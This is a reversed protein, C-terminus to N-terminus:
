KAEELVLVFKPATKGADSTAWDAAHSADIELQTSVALRVNNLPPLGPAPPPAADALIRARRNSVFTTLADLEQRATAYEATAPVRGGQGTKFPMRDLFDALMRMRAHQPAVDLTIARETELVSQWTAFAATKKRDVVTAPNQLRYLNLDALQDELYLVHRARWTAADMTLLKELQQSAKSYPSDDVAALAAQYVNIRADALTSNAAREREALSELRTLESKDKDSVAKKLREAFVTDTPHASLLAASASEWQKKYAGNLNIAEETLSAHVVKLCSLEGQTLYHWHALFEKETPYQSIHAAIQAQITRPAEGKVIAQYRITPLDSAATCEDDKANKVQQLIDGAVGNGADLVGRGGIFNAAFSGIATIVPTLTETSTSETSTLLGEDSLQVMFDPDTFPLTDMRLSYTHRPDPEYTASISYEPAGGNAPVSRTLSYVPRTLAYPIGTPAVASGATKGGVPPEAIGLKQGEYNACGVLICLVGVAGTVKM